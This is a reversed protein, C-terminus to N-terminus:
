VAEALPQWLEVKIGAPDLLWAFRGNSDEQRGIPEVGQAKAQELLGDLDDVILNIMFPQSSPAFYETDAKFPSWLTLGEPTHPFMAGDWESLPFGLVRRYWDGLAKPDATKFFIGGIGVVKAM